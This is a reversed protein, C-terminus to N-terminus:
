RSGAGSDPPPTASGDLELRLEKQEGASVTVDVAKTLKREASELVLHHTGPALTLLTPTTRGLPKGDVTVQAFPHTSLMVQASGAGGEPAGRLVTLAREAQAEHAADHLAAYAKKLGVHLRPDFPDTDIGVLLHDRAQDPHGQELLVLGLFLETLEDRPRKALTETLIKQATDLEGQALLAEAYRTTLQTSGSFRAYAKGLEEAAAKPHQRQLLLGGLHAYRRATPDRVDQFDVLETRSIDDHRREADSKFAVKAADGEPDVPYRRRALHAKWDAVFKSFPAGYAHAVAQRYSQGARLNAIIANWTATGGKQKLFAIAHFVEAFATAADKASPLLAMSPHMQEFTILAHHKVAQGLLYESTPTMAQGGAGRWRTEEYKALGEHIWIPVTNHSKTSIFYHALEHNLTDRWDYGRVLARPTIVMLRNFKCIAITGTTRVQELTLTSLRALAQDDPLIEVRIRGPPTFDFDASLAQYAAELTELAYPALVAEKGKPYYLDFHASKQVVDDKTEALADESLKRFSGARDDAGAAKYLAAAEAYRGEYFLVKAQLPALEPTHAGVQQELATLAARAGVADWRELDTEIQSVRARAGPPAADVQSPGEGGPLPAVDAQAWALAPVLCLALL